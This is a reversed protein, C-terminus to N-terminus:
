GVARRLRQQHGPFSCLLDPRRHRPLQELVRVTHGRHDLFGEQNQGLGYYHEDEPSAFTAGVQYFAKDTPRKDNVLSATGDKHNPVAMAWGQMDLLTAGAANTFVLHAGPASGNFYKAIDLQTPLPPASSKHEAFTVTLRSSRYTDGERTWGEASPKAIFGYGPPALAPEKLLSLTVRIINPAYPELVITSNGRNLVVRTEQAGAGAAFLLGLLVLRSFRLRAELLEM